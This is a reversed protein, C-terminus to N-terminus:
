VVRCVGRESEAVILRGDGAAGAPTELQLAPFDNDFAYVGEYKPNTKEGARQNGPCLYCESDYSPCAATVTKETQGLWPRKSRHPSVVVWEGTLVNLRRHSNENLDFM